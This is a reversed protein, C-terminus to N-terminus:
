SFDVVQGTRLSEKAALAIRLSQAGDHLSVVPQEKGQLCNLFHAMEDLFLQNRQFSECSLSDIVDGNHNYVSLAPTQLNMSIKGADGILDYTWRPIRQIFDLHLHVPVAQGDLQVDMLLSVLDEVDVELSSLHGGLAFVRRPLGFLAYVSDIDHILSLLVGGGLESRSEVMQRYDEYRHFGPLYEGKEIKVAVIRGIVRAQLLARLKVLCPHFRLQFGVMATLRQREVVDLLEAVGELTHSLPKEIFLHCGTQAAALAVPIHLSNPNCVFVVDPKQALAQELSPYTQIQYKQEVDSDPEIEMQATFVRAFKRVRYALLEIDDGLLTRLNRVHRQGASGLGVILAKM